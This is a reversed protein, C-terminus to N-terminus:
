QADVPVNAPATTVQNCSKHLTRSTFRSTTLPRREGSRGLKATDSAAKQTNQAASRCVLLHQKPRCLCTHADSRLVSMNVQPMSLIM